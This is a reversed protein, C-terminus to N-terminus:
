SSPHLVSSLAGSQYREVVIAPMKAKLLLQYFSNQATASNPNRNAAAERNALLDRPVGGTNFNRHQINRFRHQTNIWSFQQMRSPQYTSMFRFAPLATPPRALLTAYSRRILPNAMALSRPSLNSMETFINIPSAKELGRGLFRQPLVVDRMFDPLEAKAVTAVSQQAPSSIEHSATPTSSTVPQARRVAAVRSPQPKPAPSAYAPGRWPILLTNAISPWLDSTAAAISQVSATLPFARYLLPFPYRQFLTFYKGAAWKRPFGDHQRARQLLVRSFTDRYAPHLQLASIICSASLENPFQIRTPQGIAELRPLRAVGSTGVAAWTVQRKTAGGPEHRDFRTVRRPVLRPSSAM